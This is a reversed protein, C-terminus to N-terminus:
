DDAVVVRGQAIFSLMVPHNTLLAPDSSQAMKCYLIIAETSLSTPTTTDWGAGLLYAQAAEIMQTIETDKNVEIYHIGLRNKVDDLLAM